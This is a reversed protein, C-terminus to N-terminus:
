LFRVGFKVAGVARWFVALPPILMSTVLMEAIHSPTKATDALRQVFFRGTLALWIGGAISAAQYWGFALAGLWVLLSLVVAYYDWRPTARIRQRYLASHKKYLLADSQIKKQQRLSVGWAAPRIPHVVVAAPAHVIRQPRELLRFYLDADERWAFEFREDFGGIQELVQKRCFCNATVFEARELGKADREYDTPVGSHPMVIRGWVAQVDPEFARLGNALWDRDPMTDDDTFAVIAARAAHWGRNRAAAPGHPGPSPLYSIRLGTARTSSSWAEVVTRTANAPADDVVIIEFRSPEYRQQTLAGLCKGLLDPRGCTPVVVSVALKTEVESEVQSGAQSFDLAAERAAARYVDHFQNINSM